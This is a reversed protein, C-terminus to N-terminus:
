RCYRVCMENLQTALCFIPLLELGAAPVDGKLLRSAVTAQWATGEMSTRFGGERGGEDEKTVSSWLAVYM